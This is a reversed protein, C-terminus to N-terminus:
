IVARRMSCKSLWTAGHERKDHKQAEPYIASFATCFRWVGTGINHIEEKGRHIEHTRENPMGPKDASPITNRHGCREKGGWWGRAM